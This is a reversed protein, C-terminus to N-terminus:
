QGEKKEPLVQLVELITKLSESQEQLVKTREQYVLLTEEQCQFLEQHVQHEQYCHILLNVYLGVVLRWLSILRPKKKDRM